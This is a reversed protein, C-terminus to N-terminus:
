TDFKSTIAKYIESFLERMSEAAAFCAFNYSDRIMKRAKDDICGLQHEVKFHKMIYIELLVEKKNM